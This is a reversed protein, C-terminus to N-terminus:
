AAGYGGGGASEVLISDGKELTGHWLSPISSQQNGRILSISFPLGPAGGAVGRPATLRRDFTATFRVKDALVTYERIIGDGGRHSGAGGSGTRLAAREVRVPYEAEIFEAPTNMMNGLYVRTASAGARDANAGEGGGHTEYLTWWQGRENRGSFIVLGATACGGACLREPIIPTLARLIADVVRNATEHNGAVVPEAHIPHLISGPRTVIRVPNLTAGTQCVNEGAVAKLFYDVGAAVVSPTTNFPAAVADGSRSFDFVAQDGSITIDLAIAVPGTEATGDVHDEGSYTGDPIGQIVSRIQRDSLSFLDALAARFAALGFRQVLEVIRRDSTRVAAIQAFLDGRREEIGRVNAMILALVDAVIADEQMIRVPPIQMGEQWLDSAQINYSGAAGGGIDAWHALSIAFAMREAGCFVPRVVKVDPLHNGSEQPQNVIWVDGPRFSDQGLRAILAKVTFAMVGLHIPLDKGQAILNGDADTIASSLDAAERLAPSRAARQVTLTMEEAISALGNRIVETLFVDHAPM